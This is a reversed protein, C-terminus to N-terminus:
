AQRPRLRGLVRGDLVLLGTLLIAFGALQVPRLTEGLILWGFLLASAPVLLKFYILYALATLLAVPLMIVSSGILQGTAAIQPPM